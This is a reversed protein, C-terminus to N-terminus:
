GWIRWGIGVAIGVLIALLLLCVIRGALPGKVGVIGLWKRGIPGRLFRNPAFVLAVGIGVLYAVPVLALVYAGYELAIVLIVGPGGPKSFLGVIALIVQAITALAALGGFVLGIRVVLKHFAIDRSDYPAEGSTAIHFYLSRFFSHWTGKATPVASQGGASKPPDAIKAQLERHHAETHVKRVRASVSEPLKKGCNECWGDVAAQDSVDTGCHLCQAMSM